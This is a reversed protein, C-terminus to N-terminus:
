RFFLPQNDGPETLLKEGNHAYNVNLLYDHNQKLEEAIRILDFRVM